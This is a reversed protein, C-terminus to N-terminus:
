TENQTSTILRARRDELYEQKSQKSMIGSLLKMQTDNKRAWRGNLAEESVKRPHWEIQRLAGQQGATDWMSSM